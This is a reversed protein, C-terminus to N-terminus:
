LTLRANADSFRNHLELFIGKLALSFKQLEITSFPAEKHIPFSSFEEALM